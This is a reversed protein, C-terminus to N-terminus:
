RAGGVPMQDLLRTLVGIRAEIAAPESEMNARRDGYVSLQTQLRRLEALETARAKLLLGQLIVVDDGDVTLRIPEMHEPEKSHRAVLIAKPADNQSVQPLIVSPREHGLHGVDLQELALVRELRLSSRDEGVEVDERQEVVDSHRGLDSARGEPEHHGAVDVDGREARREIRPRHEVDSAPQRPVRPDTTQGEALVGAAPVGVRDIRVPDVPQDLVNRIRVDGPREVQPEQELPGGLEIELVHLRQGAPQRGLGAGRDEPDLLRDVRVRGPRAARAVGDVLGDEVVADTRRLRVLVVALRARGLQLADARRDRGARGPLLDVLRQDYEAPQLVIAQTHEAGAVMWPDVSGGHARVAAALDAAYAPSLRTDATGHTIFIPRGDLKAVAGLPSLSLLDDGSRLWAMAYGGYRVLTPYGNRTLEAQIALDLDGYSSDSWVAAVRPEEGTAILATAAGLSQGFLGVRGPAFGRANVLWDWGALADRYERTGGAFRGNVVTSDGHNRLDVLLAAIGARHLMGAALLM